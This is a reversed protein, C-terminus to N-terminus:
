SEFRKMYRQKGVMAFLTADEDEKVEVCSAIGLFILIFIVLYVSMAHQGGKREQSIFYFVCQHSGKFPSQV